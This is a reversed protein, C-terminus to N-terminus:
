RPSMCARCADAEVCAGIFGFTPSQYEVNLYDETQKIITPTFGDPKLKSVVEVLEKMAQEQTAAKKSGRGDQPNYTRRNQPTPTCPIRTNSCLHTSKCGNKMACCRESGDRRGSMMM